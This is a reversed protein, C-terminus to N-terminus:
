GKLLEDTETTQEEDPRALPPLELISNLGFHQLFEPTTSYLIPRGPGEARGSEFILGKHLLSKLMSDSNVGRIADIQPRTIPQQYAIIALTELAARSLHTTAELGLFREVLEALEPATTLQVRGAHRQLRLGRNSFSADLENLGREVVSPAVDLATALQAITVPEAAVFLLAELKASLPLETEINEGQPSQSDSM